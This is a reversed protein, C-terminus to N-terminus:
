KLRSFKFHCFISFHDKNDPFFELEDPWQVLTPIKHLFKFVWVTELGTNIYPKLTYLVESPDPDLKYTDCQKEDQDTDPAFM